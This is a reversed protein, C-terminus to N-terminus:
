VRPGVPKATDDWGNDAWVSGPAARDWGAVAGYRGGTPYVARSFHNGRVEIAIEGRGEGVHPTYGGGAVLNDRVMIGRQPGQGTYFAVAAEGGHAVMIVNHRVTVATDEIVLDAAAPAQRVAWYPSASSIRTAHIRVGPAEVIISGEM